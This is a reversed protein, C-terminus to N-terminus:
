SRSGGTPADARRCGRPHHQPVMATRHILLVGDPISAGGWEGKQARRTFPHQRLRQQILGNPSPEQPSPLRLVVTSGTLWLTMGGRTAKLQNTASHFTM